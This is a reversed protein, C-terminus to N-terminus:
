LVFVKFLKLLQPDIRWKWRDVILQFIFWYPFFTFRSLIQNCLELGVFLALVFHILTNTVSRFGWFVRFKVIQVQLFRFYFCIVRVEYIHNKYSVFIIDDNHIKSAFKTGALNCNCCNDDEIEVTTKRYICPLNSQYRQNYEM